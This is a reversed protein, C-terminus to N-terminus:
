FMMNMAARSAKQSQTANLKGFNWKFTIFFHRGLQNYMSDEIYNDTTIHRTTRTSNLIDNVYFGISFQKISRNVGFNWLLYPENYGSPFGKFFNYEVETSLEWGNKSSWDGDFYVSSSWTKTDAASDLSYHASRYNTSGHLSATITEGRYSLGVNPALSLSNTVSESFGSQGSFFRSGSSDGWFDEMFRNYNFTEVDLGDLRRTNQYSISRSDTASFGTQLSLKKDKTLAIRGSLFASVSVAPKASNVPISYQIGDDDFWSATVTQRQILSSTLYLNLNRQKQPNNLYISGNASHSYSPKLYINGM